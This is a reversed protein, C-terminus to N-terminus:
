PAVLRKVVLSVDFCPGTWTTIVSKAAMPSQRGKFAPRSFDGPWYM